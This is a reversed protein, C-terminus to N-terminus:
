SGGSDQRSDNTANHKINQKMSTLEQYSDHSQKPVKDVVEDRLYLYIFIVAYLKPYSEIKFYKYIEEGFIKEITFV